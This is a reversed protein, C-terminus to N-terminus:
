WFLGVLQILLEFSLINKNLEAEIILEDSVPNPYIKITNNNRILEIGVALDMKITARSSLNGIGNDQVSVTLKFSTGLATVNSVTLVGTLANIAFAGDTNGSVISYIITQDSDPDTAIVTGITDGVKSNEPIKFSQNRILPALNGNCKMLIVSSYPQLIVSDIYIKSDPTYYKADLTVTKSAKTPNYEFRM